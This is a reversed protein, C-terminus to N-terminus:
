NDMKITDDWRRREELDDKELLNGWWYGKRLEGMRAVHVALSKRRSKM